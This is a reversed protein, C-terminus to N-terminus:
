GLSTPTTRLVMKLCDVLDQRQGDVFLRALNLYTAQKGERENWSELLVVRKEDDTSYGSDIADIEKETFQLLAGVAKWDSLKLALGKRHEKSIQGDVGEWELGHVPNLSTCM